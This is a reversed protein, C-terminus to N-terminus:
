RRALVWASEMSLLSQPHPKFNHAHGLLKLFLPDVFNYIYLFIYIHTHTHTHAHAHTHTM